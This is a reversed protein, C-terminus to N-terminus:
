IGENKALLQQDMEQLRSELKLLRVELNDIIDQQEQVAKVLPVVFAAYRLGYYDKDNKPADVGSFDYGLLKATAEVEQAIFGSRIMTGAESKDIYTTRKDEGYERLYFQNIEDLDLRYTVPRLKRIFDIGVVNEQVDKKFNGDSINTWNAYGGISTVDQNGIRVQHAATCDADNGLGTNNGNDNISNASFGIATRRNRTNYGSLALSGVATNEDGSATNVLANRGVATSNDGTNRFLALSGLATNGNGTLNLQLSHTGLSTNEQGSINKFQSKYGVAVIGGIYLINGNRFNFLVSDGIAVNSRLTKNNYMAADGIAMNGNGATNNYLAYSGLAVNRNGTKNWLLSSSGVSVNRIGAENYTLSRYGIATNAYGDINENLASYGLAANANGITNNRLSNAGLAVNYGGSINEKLAYSGLVTNYNGITNETLANYGIGTNAYGTTNKKLLHHGVATIWAGHFYFTGTIGNVMLTSDGIGITGSTRNSMSADTGIAIINSIDETAGLSNSGIAINNSGTKNQQLSNVGVGVNNEGTEMLRLVNHGVATNGNGLTNLLMTQYGLGTNRNGLNNNLSYSGIALNQYGKVNNELTKRGIGINENGERANSVGSGNRLLSSDGIAINHTRSANNIGAKKGIFILGQKNQPEIRNEEMTWRENGSTYFRIIDDDPHEEVRIETDLDNDIIGSSLNIRRFGADQWFYFHREDTDFVLMGIEANTLILAFSNRQDTTLRPILVGMDDADIDLIANPNPEQYDHNIGISQSYVGHLGIISFIITLLFLTISKM